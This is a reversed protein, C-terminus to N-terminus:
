KSESREFFIKLFFLCSVLSIRFNFRSGTVFKRKQKKPNKTRANMKIREQEWAELDSVRWRRQTGINFSPKPYDGRKVMRWLTTKSCQLDQCIQNATLTASKARYNEITNNM